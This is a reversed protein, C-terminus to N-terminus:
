TGAATASLGMLAHPVCARKLVAVRPYNKLVRQGFGLETRRRSTPVVHRAVERRCGPGAYKAHSKETQITQQVTM